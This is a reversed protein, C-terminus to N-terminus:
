SRPTCSHTKTKKGEREPISSFHFPESVVLNACSMYASGVRLSYSARPVTDLRRMGETASRGEYMWFPYQFFTKRDMHTHVWKETPRSTIRTALASGNLMRCRDVLLALDRLIAAVEYEARTHVDLGASAM